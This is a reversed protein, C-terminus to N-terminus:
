ETSGETLDRRLAAEILERPPVGVIKDGVRYRRCRLSYEAASSDADEIDNNNVRISPSGLFRHAVADAQSSVETVTIAANFHNGSVIEQLLSLTPEFNPCDKSYLLEIM